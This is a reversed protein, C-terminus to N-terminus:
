SSYSFVIFFVYKNKENFKDTIQFQEERKYESNLEVHPKPKKHFNSFDTYYLKKLHVLRKHRIDLLRHRILPLCM